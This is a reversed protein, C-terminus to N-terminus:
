FKVGNYFISSRSLKLTYNFRTGSAHSSVSFIDDFNSPVNGISSNKLMCGWRLKIINELTLFNNQDYLAKANDSKRKFYIARLAKNM